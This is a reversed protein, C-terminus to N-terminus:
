YESCPTGTWDERQKAAIVRGDVGFDVEYTVKCGDGIVSYAWSVGPMNRYRHMHSPQGLIARVEDGTMGTRIQDQQAKNVQFGGPTAAWSPATAVALASALIWTCAKIRRTM